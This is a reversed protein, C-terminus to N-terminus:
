ICAHTLKGYTKVRPVKLKLKVKFPTSQKPQLNYVQTLLEKEILHDETDSNNVHDILNILHTTRAITPRIAIAATTAM